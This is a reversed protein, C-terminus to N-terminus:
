ARVDKAPGDTQGCYGLIGCSGRAITRAFQDLDQPFFPGLGLETQMVTMAVLQVAAAVAAADPEAQMQDAYAGIEVRVRNILIPTIKALTGFRDFDTQATEAMARYIGRHGSVIKRGHLTLRYFLTFLDGNGARTFDIEALLKQFDAFVKATALELLDEKGSFRHYFSGVSLGSAEIVQMITAGSFGKTWFVENAAALLKNETELGRKSRRRKPPASADPNAIKLDSRPM